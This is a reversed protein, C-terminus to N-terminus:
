DTCSCRTRAGPVLGASLFRCNSCEKHSRRMNRYRCDKRSSTWTMHYQSDNLNYTLRSTKTVVAHFTRSSPKTAKSVSNVTERSVLHLLLCVPYLASESCCRTCFTLSADRESIKSNRTPQCRMIPSLRDAQISKLLPNVLPSSLCRLPRTHVTRPQLHDFIDVSRRSSLIRSRRILM